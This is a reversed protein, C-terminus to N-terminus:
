SRRGPSTERRAARVLAFGSVLLVFGAASPVMPSAGTNVLRQPRFALPQVLDQPARTVPPPGAPGPQPPLASCPSGLTLTLDGPEDGAGHLGAFAESNTLTVKPDTVTLVDAGNTTKSTALDLDGHVFGTVSPLGAHHLPEDLLAVLEADPEVADLM